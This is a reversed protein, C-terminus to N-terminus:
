GGTLTSILRGITYCVIILLCLTGFALSMGKGFEEYVVYDHDFEGITFYRYIGAVVIMIANIISFTTFGVIASSLMFIAGTEFTGSFSIDIAFSLGIITGVIISIILSVIFAMKKM